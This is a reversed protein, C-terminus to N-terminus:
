RPGSTGGFGLEPLVGDRGDIVEEDVGVVDLRQLLCIRAEPRVVAWSTEVAQAEAEVKRPEAILAAAGVAGADAEGRLLIPFDVLGGFEGLHEGGELLHLGIKLAAWVPPM